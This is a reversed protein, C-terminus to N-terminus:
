PQTMSKRQLARIREVGSLPQQGQPNKEITDLKEKLRVKMDGGGFDISSFSPAEKVLIGKTKQPITLPTLQPPQIDAGHRVMEELQQASSDKGMQRLTTIMELARFKQGSKLYAIGLGFHAYALDSHELVKEFHYVADRPQPKAILYIWGLALHATVLNPANKVAALGAEEAEDFMGLAYYCRCLNDYAQAYNPNLETARKFLWVVEELETGMARYALGLYYYTPSFDPYIEITKEYLDIARPYDEESLAKTAEEFIIKLPNAFVVPPLCGLNFVVLFLFFLRNKV